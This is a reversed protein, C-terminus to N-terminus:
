VDASLEDEDRLRKKALAIVKPDSRMRRRTSDSPRRKHKMVFARDIIEDIKSLLRIDVVMSSRDKIAEICHGIRCREDTCGADKYDCPIPKRPM